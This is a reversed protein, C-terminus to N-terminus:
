KINKLEFHEKEKEAYWEQYLIKSDHIKTYIESGVAQNACGIACMMYKRIHEPIDDFKHTFGGRPKKKKKIKAYM